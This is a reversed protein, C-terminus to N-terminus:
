IKIYFNLYNEIFEVDCDPAYRNATVTEFLAKLGCLKM